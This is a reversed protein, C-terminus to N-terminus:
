MRASFPTHSSFGMSDFIGADHASPQPVATPQQQALVQAVISSVLSQDAHPAAEAAPKSATAANAGSAVPNSYKSLITSVAQAIELDNM